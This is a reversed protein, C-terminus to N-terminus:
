KDKKNLNDVSDSFKFYSVSLTYLAYVMICLSIWILAQPHIMPIVISLLVTVVMFAGVFLLAKLEPKM